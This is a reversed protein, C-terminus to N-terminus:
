VVNVVGMMGQKEHELIHCHYMRPGKMSQMVRLRVTEGRAVNVTDKWALLPAPQKRGGAQREVVQFQTGHIHMPHDMDTPNEIEWLEIDGVRSTFDVRSMDFSKGNILFQMSMGSGSMSMSEGLVLRKTAVPVGLAEIDRFVRPLEFPKEVVGAREITMIPMEATAPRGPGMWGRDYARNRLIARGAGVDFNIVVEVREAPALLVEELGPVPSRLYGGDSGVLTMKHGDVSLRLYRGNTANYIRFRRSSGPAVSLVPNKAGNILVHDGERGNMWDAMSNPAISGDELLSLSTIFLTTEPIGALPDFKPRVIFPAALGMYVQEPTDDHPHPHYWFPGINGPQLEFEYHRSGGPKLPDMPNGDQDSPIDLGHWHVTTDRDSLKNAVSISIRDGETADIVPGPSFGNYGLIQTHKGKVFEAHGVESTLSGIFQGARTSQNTLRQLDPLPRGEPITMIRPRDAPMGPMPHGMGNHMGPTMRRSAVYGVGLGLAALGGVVIQRRNM